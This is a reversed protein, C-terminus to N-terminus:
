LGSIRVKSGLKKACGQSPVKEVNIQKQPYRTSPFLFVLSSLNITSGFSFSQFMNQVGPFDVTGLVLMAGSFLGGWYSLLM